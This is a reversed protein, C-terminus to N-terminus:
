KCVHHGKNGITFVVALTAQFYYPSISTSSTDKFSILFLM